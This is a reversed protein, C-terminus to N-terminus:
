WWIRVKDRRRSQGGQIQTIFMFIMSIYEAIIITCPIRCFKLLLIFPSIILVTAFNIQIDTSFIKHSTHVHYILLQFNLNVSLIFIFNFRGSNWLTMAEESTYIQDNCWSLTKSVVLVKIKLQGIRGWWGMREILLKLRTMLFVTKPNKVLDSRCLSPQVVM